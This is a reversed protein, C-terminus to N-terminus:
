LWRRYDRVSDIKGRAIGGVRSLGREAEAVNLGSGRADVIVDRAQGMGRISENVQNRVTASTAGPDLSKFEVGKGDVLADPTRVGPVASEPV